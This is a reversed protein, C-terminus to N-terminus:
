MSPFTLYLFNILEGGKIEAQKATERPLAKNEEQSILGTCFQRSSTVYIRM